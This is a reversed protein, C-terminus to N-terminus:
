KGGSAAWGRGVQGWSLQSKKPAKKVNGCGRLYEKPKKFKVFIGLGELAEKTDGCSGHGKKFLYITKNFLIAHFYFWNCKGFGFSINEM